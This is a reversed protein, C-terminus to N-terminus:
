PRGADAESADRLSILDRPIDRRMVARAIPGPAGAVLLQNDYFVRTHGADLPELRWDGDMSKVDGEIRHFHVIHPAEYTSRLLIKVTPTFGGGKSIQERIDWRGAPDRQIVKCSKAGAMIHLSRECDVLLRWIVQRPANVDIQGHVVATLGEGGTVDVVPEPSQAPAAGLAGGASAIAVAALLLAGTRRPRSPAVPMQLM